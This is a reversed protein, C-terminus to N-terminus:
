KSKNQSVKKIKNQGRWHGEVRDVMVNSSAQMREKGNRFLRFVSHKTYGKRINNM